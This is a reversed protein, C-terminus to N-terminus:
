GDLSGISKGYSMDVDGAILLGAPIDNEPFETNVFALGYWRVGNRGKDFLVPLAQSSNTQKCLGAEM